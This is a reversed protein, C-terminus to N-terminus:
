GPILRGSWIPSFTAKAGSFPAFSHIKVMGSCNHMLRKKSRFHFLSSEFFTTLGRYSKNTTANNRGKNPQEEASGLEM